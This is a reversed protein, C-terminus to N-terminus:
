SGMLVHSTELGRSEGNSQSSFSRCGADARFDLFFQADTYQFLFILVFVGHLDFMICFLGCGM